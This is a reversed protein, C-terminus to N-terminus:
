KHKELYALALRMFGADEIPPLKINCRHCISGRAAGTKHCQNVVPREPPKRCLDCLGGQGVLKDRDTM